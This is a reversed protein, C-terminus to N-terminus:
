PAALAIFLLPMNKRKLLNWVQELTTIICNCKLTRSVGGIRKLAMLAENLVSSTECIALSPAGDRGGSVKIEEVTSTNRLILVAMQVSKM